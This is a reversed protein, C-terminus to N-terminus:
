ACSGRRSRRGGGGKGKPPGRTRQPAARRRDVRSRMTAQGHPPSYRQTGGERPAPPISCRESHAVVEREGHGVVESWAAGVGIVGGRDLHELPELGNPPTRAHIDAPGVLAREVVEGGLHEVIRHVFRDRPMRRPDLHRQLRAVPQRDDVIAAANRDIRVGFKGAFRRELHDQRREMRAALEGALGIRSLPPRCPTPTETTLASDDSVTDLDRAVALQIALTERLPM